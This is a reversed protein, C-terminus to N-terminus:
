LSWVAQHPHSAGFSNAEFAIVAKAWSIPGLKPPPLGVGDLSILCASSMRDRPLRVFEKRSLSKHLTDDGGGLKSPNTSPSPLCAARESNKRAGVAEWVGTARRICSPILSPLTDRPDRDSAQVGHGVVIVRESVRCRQICMSAHSM